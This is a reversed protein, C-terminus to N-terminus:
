YPTPRPKRWKGDGHLAETRYPTMNGFRIGDATLPTVDAFGSARM